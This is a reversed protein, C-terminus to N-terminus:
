RPAGIGFLALLVVVVFLVLFVIFLIKAIGAAGAAIGTFGFLGAVVAVVAFILAWKLMAYEQHQSWTRHAPSLPNDISSSYPCPRERGMPALRKGSYSPAAGRETVAEASSEAPTAALRLLVCAPADDADWRWSQGISRESAGAHRARELADTAGPRCLLVVLSRDDRRLTLEARDWHAPLCPTFAIEAGRQRMGFMHEIAARHLWAASGTYWSWGGRGVYPPQSYVDGAMVYPEIEYAAGREPHAARHAPSLYTFYRYAADGDGSMTAQAILAWVGAHSYQGGNERM